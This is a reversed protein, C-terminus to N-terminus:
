AMRSPKIQGCNVLVMTIPGIRVHGHKKESLLFQRQCVTETSLERIPGNSYEKQLFIQSQDIPIYPGIAVVAEATLISSVNLNNVSWPTRIYYSEYSRTNSKVKVVKLM